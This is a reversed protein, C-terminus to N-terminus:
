PAISIRAAPEYVFFLENRRIFTNRLLSLVFRQSRYTRLAADKRRRLEATLPYTAWSMGRLRPPPALARERMPLLAKTGSHILYGFRSTDGGLRTLVLDTLDAAASHDPHRDFGVPAIVMTPRAVDFVRELDRMVNAFRYPSGPSLAEDYPVAHKRTAPSPVVTDRNELMPRLGRDPYGLIFYHTEPIGLLRMAQRAEAIRTRGVALYASPAPDLTKHLVRATVRSCDGATLFAVFVEAGAALADLAYGGAGIVEDDIHPAIILVRDHRAARAVQPYNGIRADAQSPTVLLVSLM